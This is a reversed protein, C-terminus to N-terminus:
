PRLRCLTSNKREKQQPTTNREQQQTSNNEGTTSNLQKRRNNLQTTEIRNSLQITKRAATLNLQKEGAITKTKSNLPSNLQKRRSSIKKLTCFFQLIPINFTSM